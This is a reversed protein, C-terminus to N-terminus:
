EEAERIARDVDSYPIRLTTAIMQTSLRRRRMDLIRAKIGEWADGSTRGDGLKRAIQTEITEPSAESFRVTSFAPATKDEREVWGPRSAFINAWVRILGNKLFGPHASEPSACLAKLTARLVNEGHSQDVLRLAGIAMTMRPKQLKLSLPYTLPTVGAARCAADVRLAWPVGGARAAKFVQLPTMPTVTGNVAAFVRAAEDASASIIYCPVKDIKCMLAATARHQGDIIAWTKGAEHEAVILPSFKTWRFEAAIKNINDIGRRTIERQYRDDILLASVPLWEMRPRDGPAKAPMSMIPVPQLPKM